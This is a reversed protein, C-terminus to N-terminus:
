LPSTAQMSVKNFDWTPQIKLNFDPKLQHPVWPFVMEKWDFSYTMTGM